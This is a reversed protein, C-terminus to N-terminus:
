GHHPDQALENVVQHIAEILSVTGPSPHSKQRQTIGITRETKQLEFNLVQLEGSMRELYLWQLSIATVMDSNLLLHRLISLDSTEVVAAPPKV